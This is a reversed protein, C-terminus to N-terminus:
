SGSFQLKLKPANWGGTTMNQVDTWPFTLVTSGGVSSGSGSSIPQNSLSSRQTTFAAGAGEYLQANVTASSALTADVTLFVKWPQGAAPPTAAWFEVDLEQATPPSSSSLFTTPDGDTLAGLASGANPNWSPSAVITKVTVVGSPARVEVSQTISGTKGNSDTVTLTVNYTGAAAYTHSPTAGTGTGGDGFTWSYSSITAPSIATSGSGDFTAALAATHNTFAATPNGAPSLAITYKVAINFAASATYTDSGYTGAASPNSNRDAIASSGSFTAAAASTSRVTFGAPPTWSTIATGNSKGSVIEILFSAASTTLAPTTMTTTNAQAVAYNQIPSSTDVSSYAALSIQWTRIASLTGWTLTSGPSITTGDVVATFLRNPFGTNGTNTDALTVGAPASTYADTNNQSLHILLVDGVQCTAPVTVSPSASNAANNAAARFATM